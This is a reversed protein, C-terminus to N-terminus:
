EMGARLLLDKPTEDEALSPHLLVDQQSQPPVTSARVLSEKAPLQGTNFATFPMMTGLVAGSKRRGLLLMLAGLFLYPTLYACYYFALKSYSVFNICSPEERQELYKSYPLYAILFVIGLCCFLAAASLTLTLTKIARYTGKSVFRKPKGKEEHKEDM